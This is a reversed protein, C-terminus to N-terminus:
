PQQINRAAQMGLEGKKTNMKYCSVHSTLNGQRYRPWKHHQSIQAPTTHRSGKKKKAQTQDM